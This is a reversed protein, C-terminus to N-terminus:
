SLAALIQERTLPRNNGGWFKEGDPEQRTDCYIELENGDPDNFYMGWGIKHDVPSVAIGGDILNKYAVAFTRKDPVDFALHALGVVNPPPDTAEMRIQSLALEHHPGGSTLFATEGSIETVQLCLYKQYFATSKATDRVSLHAHGISARYM